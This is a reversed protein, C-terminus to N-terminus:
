ALGPLPIAQRNEIIHNGGVTDMQKNDVIPAPFNNGPGHLQHGAASSLFVILSLLAFPSVPLVTIVGGSHFAAAM